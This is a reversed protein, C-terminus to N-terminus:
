TLNKPVTSKTKQGTVDICPTGPRTVRRIKTSRPLSTDIDARKAKHAAQVTFLQFVNKSLRKMKFVVKSKVAEKARLDRNEEQWKRRKLITEPVAPLKGEVAM